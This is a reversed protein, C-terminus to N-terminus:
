SAFILNLTLIMAVAATATKSIGVSNSRAASAAFGPVFPLQIASGLTEAPSGDAEIGAAECGVAM